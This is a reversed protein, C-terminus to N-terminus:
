EEKELIEPLEDDEEIYEAVYEYEDDIVSVREVHHPLEYEVEDAERYETYSWILVDSGEGHGSDEIVCGYLYNALPQGKRRIEEHDGHWISYYDRHNPHRCQRLEYRDGNEQNLILAFVREKM